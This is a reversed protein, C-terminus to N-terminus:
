ARSQSGADTAARSLMRKPSSALRLLETVGMTRWQSPITEMVEADLGDSVVLKAKWNTVDARIVFARYSMGNAAFERVPGIVEFEPATARYRTM